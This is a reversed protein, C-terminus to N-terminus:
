IYAKIPPRRISKRTHSQCRYIIGLPILVGLLESKISEGRRNSAMEENVNIEGKVKMVAKIKVEVKVKILVKGKIRVM